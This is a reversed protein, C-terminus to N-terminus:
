NFTVFESAIWGQRGSQDDLKVSIWQFGDAATFTSILLSAKAGTAVTTLVEGTLTPFARLNVPGDTITVSDSAPGGVAAGPTIYQEAFWGIAGDDDLEVQHWTIDDAVEPGDSVITGSKGFAYTGLVSTSVGPESRLNLLDTSVSVAAGQEFGATPPKTDTLVLDALWGNGAAVTVPYWTYGDAAVGDGTVSVEEGVPLTTIVNFTIGAGDRLNADVVSVWKTSTTAGPTEESGEVALYSSDVWGQQSSTTVTVFIWNVGDVAKRQAADIAVSTGFPLTTLINFSMGAGSRLNLLDTNVVRLNDAAAIAMPAAKGLVVTGISAGVVLRLANRRTFNRVAM